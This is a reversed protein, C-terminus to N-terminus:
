LFAIWKALHPQLLVLSPILPTPTYRNHHEAEGGLPSRRLGWCRKLGRCVRSPALILADTRMVRYKSDQPAALGNACRCWLSLMVVSFPFILVVTHSGQLWPFPPLVPLEEGLLSGAMELWFWAQWCHHHSRLGHTVFHNLWARRERIFLTHYM